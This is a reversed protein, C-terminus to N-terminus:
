ENVDANSECNESLTISKWAKDIDEQPIGPYPNICNPLQFLLLNDKKKKDKEVALKDLLPGCKKLDMLLKPNKFVNIDNTKYFTLTAEEFLNKALLETLIIEKLASIEKPVALSKKTQIWQANEEVITAAIRSFEPCTSFSDGKCAFNVREPLLTGATLHLIDSANEIETLSYKKADHVSQCYYETTSYEFHVKQNNGALAHSAFTSTLLAILFFKM